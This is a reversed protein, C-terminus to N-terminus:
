SSDGTINFMGDIDSYPSRILLAEAQMNAITINSSMGILAANGFTIRPSLAEIHQSFYPLSTLFNAIYQPTSTNPFLFTINFDLHDPATLNSPVYIYLGDSGALNMLCVSTQERIDTGTYSMLVDVTARPNTSNPNIGVTLSGTVPGVLSPVCSVNSQVFITPTVPLYYELHAQLVGDQWQDKFDWSNCQTASDVPVPTAGLNFGTSSNSGLQPPSPYLVNPTKYSESDHRTKVVILPVGIAVTVVFYAVLGYIFWRWRRSRPKVHFPTKLNEHEQSTEYDPLSPTPTGPRRAVPHAPPPSAIKPFQEQDEDLIIM